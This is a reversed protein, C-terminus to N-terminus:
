PAKAVEADILKDIVAVETDPSDIFHVANLQDFNQNVFSKLFNIIREKNDEEFARTTPIKKAKVFSQAALHVWAERKNEKLKLFLPFDELDDLYSDLQSEDLEENDIMSNEIAMFIGDRPHTDTISSGDECGLGRIIGGLVKEMVVRVDIGGLKALEEDDLARETFYIFVQRLDLLEKDVLETAIEKTTKPTKQDM